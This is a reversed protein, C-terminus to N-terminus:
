KFYQEPASMRDDTPITQVTSYEPLSTNLCKGMNYVLLGTTNDDQCTNFVVDDFCDLIYRTYQGQINRLYSSRRAPISHLTGQSTIM